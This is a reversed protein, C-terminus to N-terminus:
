LKWSSVDTQRHLLVRPLPYKQIITNDRTKTYSLLCKNQFEKTAKSIIGKDGNSLDEYHLMLIDNNNHVVMIITPDWWAHWFRTDVCFKRGMGLVCAAIRFPRSSPAISRGLKLAPITSGACEERSMTTLNVTYNVLLSLEDIILPSVQRHQWVTGFTHSQSGIHSSISQVVSELMNMLVFRNFRMPNYLFFRNDNLIFIM